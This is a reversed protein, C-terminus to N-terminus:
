IQGILSFHRVFASGAGGPLATTKLCISQGPTLVVTASDDFIMTPVIPTAPTVTIKPGTPVDNICVQVELGPGTISNSALELTFNRITLPVLGNYYYRAEDFTLWNILSISPIITIYPQTPTLTIGSLANHQAWLVFGGSGPPGIPGQAGRQGPNGQIGPPGIPGTLGRKPNCCCPTSNCNCSM